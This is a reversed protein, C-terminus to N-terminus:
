RFSNIGFVIPLECSAINIVHGM